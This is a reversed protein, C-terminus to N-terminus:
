HHQSLCSGMIKNERERKLDSYITSSFPDMQRPQVFPWFYSFESNLRTEGRKLVSKTNCGPGPAPTLSINAFKGSAATLYVIIVIVPTWSTHFRFFFHILLYFSHVFQFYFNVKFNHRNISHTSHEGTAQSVLTWDWTSNYWLSFFITSSAM